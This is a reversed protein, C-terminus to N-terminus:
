REEPNVALWDLVQKLMAEEAALRKVVEREVEDGLERRMAVVKEFRAFLSSTLSELHGIKGRVPLLALLPAISFPEPPAYLSRKM